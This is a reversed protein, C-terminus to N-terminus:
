NGKFNESSTKAKLKNKDKLLQSLMQKLINISEQQAQIMDFQEQQVRAQEEFQKAMEESTGAM